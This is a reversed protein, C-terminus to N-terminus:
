RHRQQDPTGAIRRRYVGPRAEAYRAFLKSLHSADHLGVRTAVAELKEGAEALLWMAAEVRLKAIYVKLPLGIEEQFCASLHDPSAGVARAVARVSAGVYGTGLHDLVSRIRPSYQRSPSNGTTVDDGLVFLLDTVTAPAKLARDSGSARTDLGIVIFQAESRRELVEFGDSHEMVLDLLILDIKTSTLFTLAQNGDVADIVQYDDDLILHLADRIGPDDDVVLITATPHKEM